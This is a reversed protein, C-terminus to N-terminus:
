EVGLIIKGRTHSSRPSRLDAMFKVDDQFMQLGPSHHSVVQAPFNFRPDSGAWYELTDLVDHVQGDALKDKVEERSISKRVQELQRILTPCGPAYVRLQPRGCTRGRMWARLKMSRVIWVSESPLFTTGAVQNRLGADRFEKEYQQSVKWAFGMPTQAGAKADIVWRNYVRGPDAFKVRQAMERADIRPVALEKYVVYYPEGNDWFDPTPIAGWILAPKTTGPDLILEVTWDPPVNGNLNRITQSVRDDLPSQESYEASHLEKNFEPYALISGTPFEGFDRALREDETWGEARKRKEESDVFPSDSGRFIFRQVDAKARLGERVEREQQVARDHLRLLAPTDVDPWSTWFIRGKYDSIRSQWEAYHTSFRIEEDIWIVNVPDGRKVDGTSPFAFAQSGDAFTMSTFKHEAKNEWTEDLIEDPPILPPAPIRESPDLDEDGAIRGPQWARLQGTQKDRVLDFAGPSCLLRYITQGVHSLQLGILWVRVPRHRWAKERIHWRTGDAFVLPKNRVYSAIMAAVITSKGSRTGGQVLIESASTQVVREQYETPRFLELADVQRRALKVAALMAKQSAQQQAFQRLVERSDSSM